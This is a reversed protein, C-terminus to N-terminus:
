GFLGFDFPANILLTDPLKELLSEMKEIYKREKGKEPINFGLMVLDASRSNKIIIERINQNIIFIDRERVQKNLKEKIVQDEEPTEDPGTMEEPLKLEEEEPVEQEEVDPFSLVERVVDFLRKRRQQRKRFREFELGYVAEQVTDSSLVEIAARIRSRDVLEQLLGRTQELKERLVITKITLKTESWYRSITLLHALLLM